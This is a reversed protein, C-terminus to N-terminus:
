PLPLCEFLWSEYNYKVRFLGRFALCEVNLCVTIYYIYKVRFLGLTITDRFVYLGFFLLLLLAICVVHPIMM